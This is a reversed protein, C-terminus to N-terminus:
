MRDPKAAGYTDSTLLGDTVLAIRRVQPVGFEDSSM